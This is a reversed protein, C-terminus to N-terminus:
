WYWGVGVTAGFFTATMDLDDFSMYMISAQPVIAFKSALRLEGGVAATFGVGQETDSVTFGLLEVELDAQAVAPGAKIFFYDSPYFWLCIAGNSLVWTAETGFTEEEFTKTWATGDLGILLQPTLAYGIYFNGAGGFESESDVNPDDFDPTLSGGGVGLGIFFGTHDAPKLEAQATGFGILLLGITLLMAHRLKM